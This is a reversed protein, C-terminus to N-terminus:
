WSGPDRHTPRSRAYAPSASSSPAANGAADLAYGTLWIWGEYTPREDVSIVRLTLAAAGAFQVSAAEDIRLLDGPRPRRPSPTTM